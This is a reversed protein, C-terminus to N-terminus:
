APRHHRLFLPVGARDPAGAAAGRARRASRGPGRGHDAPLAAALEALASTYVLLKAGSDALVYAVEHPLLHISLPTVMLGARKAGYSMVLFDPQNELLLAVGDGPQLGRSVLWRAALTARADLQGFTLTEGTDAFIAAPKDPQRVAWQGLLPM